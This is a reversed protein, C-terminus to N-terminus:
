PFLLKSKARPYTQPMNTPSEQSGEWSPGGTLVPDAPSSSLLPAWPLSPLRLTMM